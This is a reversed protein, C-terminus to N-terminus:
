SYKSLTRTMGAFAPIVTPGSFGGFRGLSLAPAEDSGQYGNCTNEPGGLVIIMLLAPDVAIQM